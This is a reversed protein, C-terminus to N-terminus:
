GVDVEWLRATRRYEAVAAATSEKIEDRTRRRLMGPRDAVLRDPDAAVQIVEYDARLVRRCDPALGPIVDPHRPMVTTPHISM